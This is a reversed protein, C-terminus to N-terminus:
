IYSQYISLMLNEVNQISFKDIYHTNFKGMDERLQSDSILLDLGEKIDKTSDPRIYVGGKNEVILDTNGRIQSVVCPLGVAMAEMLSVPLGERFSPFCFIDAVKLIEIVDNRFGTFIVRDDVNLKKAQDKLNNLLNGQGCIVYYLNKNKFECLADIIKSHNKNNNLEGISILMISNSPVGLEERKSTKDVYKEKIQDINVGIGPVYVANSSFKRATNYDENNITIIKDTYISLFKEIPYYLLWNKFPAGKYFHFGHATYIVKTNDKKRSKRAALRSILGGIPSHCHIIDFKETNILQRVKFYIRINKLSFANREFHMDHVEVDITKLREILHEVSKRDSTSGFKFNAAVHVKCKLKQLVKINEINFQDIMSAVSAVILVKKM